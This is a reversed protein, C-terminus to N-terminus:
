AMSACGDLQSVGCQILAATARWGATHAARVECGATMTVVHLVQWWPALRAHWCGLAAHAVKDAVDCCCLVVVIILTALLQRGPADPASIAHLHLLASAM